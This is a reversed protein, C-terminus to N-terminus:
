FSPLSNRPCPLCPTVFKPCQFINRNSMQYLLSNVPIGPFCVLKLLSFTIVKYFLNATRLSLFSLVQLELYKKRFKLNNNLGAREASHLCDECLLNESFLYKWGLSKKKGRKGKRKPYEGSILLHWDPSHSHSKSVKHKTSLPTKTNMTEERWTTVAWATRTGTVPLRLALM